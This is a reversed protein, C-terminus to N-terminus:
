YFDLKVLYSIFGEFVLVSQQRLIDLQPPKSLDFSFRTQPGTGKLVADKEM